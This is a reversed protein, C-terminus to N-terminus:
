SRHSTHDIILHHVFLCCLSHMSQKKVAEEHVLAMLTKTHGGMWDHCYQLYPEVLNEPDKVPILQKGIAQFETETMAAVEFRDFEHTRVERLTDSIGTKSFELITKCCKHQTSLNSAMGGVSEAIAVMAEYSLKRKKSDLTIYIILPHVDKGKAKEAEKAKMRVQNAHKIFKTFSSEAEPHKYCKEKFEDLVSAEIMDRVGVGGDEHAKQLVGSDITVFLVGEKYENTLLNQMMTTKGSGSEGMLVFFGNGNHIHEHLDDKLEDHQQRKFYKMGKPMEPNYPAAVVTELMKDLHAQSHETKNPGYYYHYVGLLLSSM